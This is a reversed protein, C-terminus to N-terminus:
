PKITLIFNCIGNLTLCSSVCGGITSVVNADIRSGAGGFLSSRNIWSNYCWHTGRLYRGLLTFTAEKRM